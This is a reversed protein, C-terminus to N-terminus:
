PRCTTVLNRHHTGMMLAIIFDPDSVQSGAGILEQKRTTLRDIFESVTETRSKKYMNFKTKLVFLLQADIVEYDTKLKDWLDKPNAVTNYKRFLNDCLADRIFALAKKESLVKAKQLTM